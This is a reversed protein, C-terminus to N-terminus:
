LARLCMAVLQVKYSGDRQPLCVGWSHTCGSPEPQGFHYFSEVVCKSIAVKLTLVDRTVKLQDNQDM